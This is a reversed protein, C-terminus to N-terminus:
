NYHKLTLAQKPGNYVSLSMCVMLIVCDGATLQGPLDKGYNVAISKSLLAEVFLKLTKVSFIV